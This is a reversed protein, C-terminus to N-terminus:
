SAAVFCGRAASSRLRHAGVLKVLRCGSFRRQAVSRGRAQSLSQVLRSTPTGRTPVFGVVGAWSGGRPRGRPPWSGAGLVPSRRALRAAVRGRTSVLGGRARFPVSVPRGRVHRRCGPISPIQRTVVPRRSNVLRWSNVLAVLQRTGRTSSCAWSGRWPDGWPGDVPRNHYFCNTREGRAPWSGAVLGQRTCRRTGVPESSSVDRFELTPGRLAWSGAVPRERASTNM